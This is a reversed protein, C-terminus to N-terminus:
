VHKQALCLIVLIWHVNYTLLWDDTHFFSIMPIQNSKICVCECECWNVIAVFWKKKKQLAIRDYFLAYYVLTNSM